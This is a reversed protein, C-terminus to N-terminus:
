PSLRDIVWLDEATKKYLFRDHLRSSQGQWFEITEPYVRYGGWFDPLPIEGRLFKNKAKEFEMLLLKRSSIVKSQQSVWAGLQSDRPRSAFYRASEAVSIKEAKGTVAVQRELAVWPFLLAVQSNDAMEKAKRSGYNTFFVFGTQDFYKLLVTRLSPCGRADVTALSMANPENIQANCAEAFWAAFQLMPNQNLQERSLSSKTYDQRFSSIDM